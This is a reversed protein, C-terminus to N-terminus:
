ACDDHQVSPIATRDAETVADSPPHVRKHRLWRVHSLTTGDTRLYGETKVQPQVTSVIASVQTSIAPRPHTSLFGCSAPSAARM